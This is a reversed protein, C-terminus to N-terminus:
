LKFSLYSRFHRLETAFAFDSLSRRESLLMKDDVDDAVTSGWILGVVEGYVNVLPSGSNGQIVPCYSLQMSNGKQHYLCSLETIRASSISQHDVVWATLNEGVFSESKSLPFSAVNVSRDIELVTYDVGKANLAGPDVQTKVIRKCRVSEYQSGNYISIYTNRCELESAVCHNNTVLKNSGNLFGSCTASDDPNSPNHIFLRAIGKPCANGNLSACEFNQEVLLSSIDEQTLTIRKRGNIGSNGCSTLLVLLTLLIFLQATKM